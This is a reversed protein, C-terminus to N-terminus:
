AMEDMLYKPLFPYRVIIEDGTKLLPVKVGTEGGIGAPSNEISNGRAMFAGGATFMETNWSKYALLADREDPRGGDPWDGPRVSSLLLDAADRWTPNIYSEDDDETIYPLDDEDEEEEEEDGDPYFVKLKDETWKLNRKMGLQEITVADDPSNDVAGAPMRAKGTNEDVAVRPLDICMLEMSNGDQVTAFEVSSILTLFANTKPTYFFGTVTGLEFRSQFLVTTMPSIFSIFPCRITRTGSPTMDYIAPLFVPADALQKQVYTDSWLEKDTDKDHYFYFNGDLTEYWRLFPFHQQLLALQGGIENAQRNFAEQPIPRMKKRQSPTLGHGYLANAAVKKRLTKSAVCLVGFQQADEVSMLGNKLLVLETWKGGRHIKVTQRVRRGGGDKAGDEKVTKVTHLVSPRIFRRTIFRFLIAEMETYDGTLEGYGKALVAETHDWRLGEQMSGIIGKFYTVKDPPYSQQYGSMIQVTIQNGGRKGAGPAMANNDLDYFQSVNNRREQETWDPFQARYGMQIVCWEVPDGEATFMEKENGGVFLNTVYIDVGIAVDEAVQKYTVKIDPKEACRKFGVSGDKGFVPEYDSRISFSSGGRRVFKLNIIRDFLDDATLELGDKGEKVFAAGLVKNM